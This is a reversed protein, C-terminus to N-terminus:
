KRRNQTKNECKNWVNIFRKLWYSQYPHKIEDSFLLEDASCFETINNKEIWNDYLKILLNITMKKRWKKNRNAILNKKYALYYSKIYKDKNSMNFQDLLCGKFLLSNTNYNEQEYMKYVIKNNFAQDVNINYYDCIFSFETKFIKEM